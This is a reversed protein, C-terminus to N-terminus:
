PLSNSITSFTEGIRPGLAVLALMICSLVTGIGSLAMGIIGLTRSRLDRTGLYGLVLGILALPLGVYPILFGCFSLVGAVISIIAMVQGNGASAPKVPAPPVPANMQDNM